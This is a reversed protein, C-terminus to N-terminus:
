SQRQQSSIQPVQAPRDGQITRRLLTNSKLSHQPSCTLPTDRYFSGERQLATLGGVENSVREIAKPLAMSALILELELELFLECVKAIKGSHAVLAGKTVTLGKALYMGVAGSGVAVAEPLLAAGATAAAATVAISILAITAASKM